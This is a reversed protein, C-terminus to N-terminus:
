EGLKQDAIALLFRKFYQGASILSFGLAVVLLAIGLARFDVVETFFLFDIPYAANVILGIIGCLQFATKYKGTQAVAIEFGETSAISRLGAIAMERSLLLVVFWGPVRDLECAIVLTGMVILKDALPDLLKGVVSVQGRRRALWGDFWDTIAALAFLWAAAYNAARTDLLMLYLVPPILAIRAMTLLNPLNTLEEKIPRQRPARDHRKGM